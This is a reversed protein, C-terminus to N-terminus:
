SRWAPRTMWSLRPLTNECNYRLSADGSAEVDVTGTPLCGWIGGNPVMSVVCILFPACPPIHADRGVPEYWFVGYPPM